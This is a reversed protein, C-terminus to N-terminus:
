KGGMYKYNGTYKTSGMSPAANYESKTKTMKMMIKTNKNKLNYIVKDKTVGEDKSQQINKNL